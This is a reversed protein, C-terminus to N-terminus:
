AAAECCFTPTTWFSDRRLSITTVNNQKVNGNFTYLYPNPKEYFIEVSQEILGAEPMTQLFLLDPHKKRQKLNTEGDLNKTEVYVFGSEDSHRLLLLDCPFFENKKVKVIDGVRIDKARRRVFGAQSLVEVYRNNEERDSKHRKLDEVFDKIMSITIVILLPVYMTPKGDSISIPSALQLLGIIFFYLNAPKSFQEILNFVLFSAIHYKATSIQNNCLELDPINTLIRRDPLETFHPRRRFPNWRGPKYANEYKINM